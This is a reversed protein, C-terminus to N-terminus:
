IYYLRMRRKSKYKELAQHRDIEIVKIERAKFLRQLAHSVRIKDMALKDAIEARSLPIKVKELLEIVEDQAM